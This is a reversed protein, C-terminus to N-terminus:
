RITGQLGDSTPVRQHHGAGIDGNVHLGGAHDCSVADIAGPHCRREVASFGVVRIECQDVSWFSLIWSPANLFDAKFLVDDNEVAGLELDVDFSADVGEGLLALGEIRIVPPVAPLTVM